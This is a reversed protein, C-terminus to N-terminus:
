GLEYRRLHEDPSGDSEEGSVVLWLL